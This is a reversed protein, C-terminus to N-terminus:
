HSVGYCIFLLQRVCGCGILWQPLTELVLKSLFQSDIIKLPPAVAGGAGITAVARSLCVAELAEPM